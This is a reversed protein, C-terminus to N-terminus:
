ILIAEAEQLEPLRRLQMSLATLTILVKVM